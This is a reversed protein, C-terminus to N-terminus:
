ANSIALPVTIYLSYLVTTAGPYMLQPALSIMGPSSKKEDAQKRAANNNKGARTGSLHM